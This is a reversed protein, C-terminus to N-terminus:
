IPLVPLSPPSPTTITLYRVLAISAEYVNGSDEGVVGCVTVTFPPCVANSVVVTGAAFPDLGM